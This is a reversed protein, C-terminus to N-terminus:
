TGRRLLDERNAAVMIKDVYASRDQRSAYNYMQDTYRSILNLHPQILQEDHARAAYLLYRHSDEFREKSRLMILTKLGIEYFKERRVQAENVRFDVTETLHLAGNKLAFDAFLNESESVPFHSVILHREIDEVKEGLLRTKQFLRRVETHLRGRVAAKHPASPPSVLEDMLRNVQAEYDSPSCKLWAVESTTVPGFHSLSKQVASFDSEKGVWSRIDDELSLVEEVTRRADIATAKRLNRTIRVDIPAGEIVLGINVREGRAPDPVYRVVFYNYTREM